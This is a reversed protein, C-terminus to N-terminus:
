KEGRLVRKANKMAYEPFGYFMVGIEGNTKARVGFPELAEVTEKLAKELLEMKTAASYIVEARSNHGEAQLNHAVVRLDEVTPYEASV